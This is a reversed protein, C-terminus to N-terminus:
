HYKSWVIIGLLAIVGIIIYKANDNYPSFTGTNPTLFGALGGNYANGANITNLLDGISKLDPAGIANINTVPNFDSSNRSAVGPNANQGGLAGGLAGAIGNSLGSGLGSGLGGLIPALFSM